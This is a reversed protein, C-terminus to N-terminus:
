FFFAMEEFLQVGQEYIQLPFSYSQEYNQLPFSYSQEYNWASPFLIVRLNLLFPIPNSTSLPPFSCVERIKCVAELETYNDNM